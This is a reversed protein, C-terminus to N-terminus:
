PGIGLRLHHTMLGDAFM